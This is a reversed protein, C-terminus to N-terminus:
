RGLAADLTRAMVDPLPFDASVHQGNLFFTPTSNVGQAEAVDLSRMIRDRGAADNLSAMVQTESLGWESGAAVLSTVVGGLTGTDLIAHQREFLIGLRRFYESADAGGCRALQFMGFAVAPPPTLMEQLTLRVQGTDIYDSKLTAWNTAHFHACHPCTASAFEVLHIPAAAAGISMADTNVTQTRAVGAVALGLTLGGAAFARRSPPRIM